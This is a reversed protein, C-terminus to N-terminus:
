IPQGPRFVAQLHRRLGEEVRGKGDITNEYMLVRFPSVDFPLKISKDAILITPKNIAHAYGVEYYVNANTPTIEAIVVAAETLQRTIDQIILGQSYIEDVRVPEVDFELCVKKIVEKYLENYPTSFQMVIFAKPKESKVEYDSITVKSKSLVNMGVPLGAVPNPLVFDVMQAGNVKVLVRTGIITVSLEYEKNAKITEAVGVMAGQIPRWERGDNSAAAVLAGAIGLGITISKSAGVDVALAISVSAPSTPAEFIAKLSITGGSFQADCLAFGAAGGDDREKGTAADIWNTPKGHFTLVNSDIGSFEGFIPTWRLNM